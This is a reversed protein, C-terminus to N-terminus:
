KGDELQTEENQKKIKVNRNKVKRVRERQMEEEVMLLFIEVLIRPYNKEV